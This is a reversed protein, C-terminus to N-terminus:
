AEPPKHTAHGPKQPTLPPLTPELGAAYCADLFCPVLSLKSFTAAKLWQTKTAQNSISQEPRDGTEDSRHIHHSVDRINNIVFM